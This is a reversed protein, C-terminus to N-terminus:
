FLTVFGASGFHRDNTFVERLGLRRMVAFSVCDVIGAGGTAERSYSEWAGQWDDATPTILEGRVELLKRLHDPEARYPRRAAANGCELLIFTTTTLPTRGAVIAAFANEAAAHWQDSTDWLALLGVTDLFVAKM